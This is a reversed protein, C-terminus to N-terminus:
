VSIVKAALDDIFFTGSAESLAIMLRFGTAEDPVSLNKRFATWDETGTKEILPIGDGM